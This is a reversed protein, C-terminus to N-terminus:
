FDWLFTLLIFLCVEPPIVMGSRLSYYLSIITLVSNYLYLSLCNSQHFLISSESIFGCITVQDKVSSRFVMWHFFLCCKWYITCTWSASLMYLFAFQDMRIEKYL